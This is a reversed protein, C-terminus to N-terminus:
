GALCQDVFQKRASGKLGQQRASEICALRIARATAHGNGGPWFRQAFVDLDGHEGPGSWAAAFGGDALAILQPVAGNTRIPLAPGVPAGEIGYRQVAFQDDATRGAVVYGPAHRGELQVAKLQAGTSPIPVLTKARISQGTVDLVRKLVLAVNVRRVQVPHPNSGHPSVSSSHKRWGDLLGM